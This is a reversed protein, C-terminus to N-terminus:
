RVAHEHPIKAATTLRGVKFFFFESFDNHAENETMTLAFIQFLPFRSIVYKANKGQQSILKRSNFLSFFTAKFRGKFKEM